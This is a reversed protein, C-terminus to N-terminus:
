WPTRRAHGDVFPLGRVDGISGRVPRGRLLDAVASRPRGQPRQDEPKKMIRTSAVMTDTAVGAIMRSRFASTFETMQTM